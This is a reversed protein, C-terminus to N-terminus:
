GRFNASTSEAHPNDYDAELMEPYPIWDATFRDAGSDDGNMIKFATFRLVAEAKTVMHETHLIKKIGKYDHNVFRGRIVLKGEIGETILKKM